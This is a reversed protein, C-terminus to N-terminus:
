YNGQQGHHLDDNSHYETQAVDAAMVELSQPDGDATVQDWVARCSHQQSVAVPTDEQSRPCRDDPTRMGGWALAMQSRFLQPRYVPPYQRRIKNSINHMNTLM